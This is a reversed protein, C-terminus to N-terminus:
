SRVEPPLRDLEDQVTESALRRAVEVQELTPERREGPYRFRWAYPTLQAAMGDLGAFDPDIACCQGVLHQLQHTKPFPVSHWTLFAKLAKEAAQQAHFLASTAVPPQAATCAEVTRLDAAAFELWSTVEALRPDDPQM